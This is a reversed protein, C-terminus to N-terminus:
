LGPESPSTYGLPHLEPKNRIRHPNPYVMPALIGARRGEPKPSRAEPDLDFVSEVVNQTMMNTYVNQYKRSAQQHCAPM